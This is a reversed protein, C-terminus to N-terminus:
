VKNLSAAVFHGMEHLLQIGLIGFFIPSTIRSTDQAYCSNAFFATAAVTLISLVGRYEPRLEPSLDTGPSTVLLAPRGPSLISLITEDLQEEELSKAVEEGIKAEDLDALVTQDRIYYYQYKNQLGTTVLQKDIKDILDDGSKLKSTGRILYAPGVRKAKNSELSFADSIPVMVEKVFTEMATENLKEKSDLIKTPITLTLLDIRELYYPDNKLEKQIDVLEETVDGKLVDWDGFGAWNLLSSILNAGQKFMKLDQQTINGALLSNELDTEILALLKWMEDDESFVMTENLLEKLEVAISQLEELLQQDEPTGEKNNFVYDAVPDDEKPETTAVANESTAAAAAAVKTGKENKRDVVPSSSSSKIAIYNKLQDIRDQIDKRDAVSLNKSKQQRLLLDELTRLKSQVLDQELSDAEKRAKQARERLLSSTLVAKDDNDDDGDDLTEAADNNKSERIKSAALWQLQRRSSFNNPKPPSYSKMRRLKTRRTGQLSPATRTTWAAAVGHLSFLFLLFSVKLALCDM